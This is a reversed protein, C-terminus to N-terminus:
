VVDQVLLEELSIKISNVIMSIVWLKNQDILESGDLTQNVSFRITQGISLNLLDMILESVHVIVPLSSSVKLFSIM